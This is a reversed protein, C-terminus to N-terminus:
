ASCAGPLAHAAPFLQAPAQASYTLHMSPQLSPSHKKVHWAACTAPASCYAALRAPLPVHAEARQVNTQGFAAPHVVTGPRGPWHAHDPTATSASSRAMRILNGFFRRRADM